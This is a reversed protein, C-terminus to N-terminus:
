GEGSGGTYSFVSVLYPLHTLIKISHCSESCLGIAWSVIWTFDKIRQMFKLKFALILFKEQKAPVLM